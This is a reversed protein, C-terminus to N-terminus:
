FKIGLKKLEKECQGRNEFHIARFGLEEAAEVCEQIDDVFISEGAKANLKKLALEFIEKGPKIVGVEHSLVPKEFLQLVGEKLLRKRHLEDSNSIMGVTYNKKLKKVLEVMKWDTPWAGTWIQLLQKMQGRSANPFIRELAERVTAEGLNLETDFVAASHKGMKPAIGVRNEAEELFDWYNCKLVVGGADFFVVKTGAM